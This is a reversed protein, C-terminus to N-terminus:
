EYIYVITPPISAGKEHIKFVEMVLKGQKIFGLSDESSKTLIKDGTNFVNVLVQKEAIKSM